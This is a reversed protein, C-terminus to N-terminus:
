INRILNFVFSPLLYFIAVRTSSSCLATGWVWEQFKRPCRPTSNLGFEKNEMQPFQPWLIWWFLEDSAQLTIKKLDSLVWHSIGPPGTTFFGGGLAPSVPKIGPQPLNWMGHPLQTWSDYSSFGMRQLARVRCCSFCHSTQKGCSSSYGAQRLSSGTCLYFVFDLVFNSPLWLFTWFREGTGAGSGCEVM